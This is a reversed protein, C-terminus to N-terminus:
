FFGLFQISQKTRRERVVETSATQNQFTLRTTKYRRSQIIFKRSINNIESNEESEVNSKNALRKAIADFTM